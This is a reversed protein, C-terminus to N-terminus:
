PLHELEWGKENLMGERAHSDSEFGSATVLKAILPELYPRVLIFHKGAPSSPQQDGDKSEPGTSDGVHL